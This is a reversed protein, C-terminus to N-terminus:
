PGERQNDLFLSLFPSPTDRIGGRGEIPEPRPQGTRPVPRTARPEPLPSCACSERGETGAGKGQSEARKSVRESSRSGGYRTGRGPGAHNPVRELPFAGV